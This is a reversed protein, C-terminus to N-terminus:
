ITQIQILGLRKAQGPVLRFQKCLYDGSSILHYRTLAYLLCLLFIKACCKGARKVASSITCADPVGKIDCASQYRVFYM